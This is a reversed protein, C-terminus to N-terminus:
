EEIKRLLYNSYFFKSERSVPVVARGKEPEPMPAPGRDGALCDKVIGSAV